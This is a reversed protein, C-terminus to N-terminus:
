ISPINYSQDTGNGGLVQSSISVHSRTNVALFGHDTFLSSNGTLCNLNNLIIMLLKLLLFLM